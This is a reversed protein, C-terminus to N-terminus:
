RSFRLHERCSSRFLIACFIFDVFDQVRRFLPSLNNSPYPLPIRIESAEAHAPPNDKIIHMLRTTPLPWTLPPRRRLQSALLLGSGPTAGPTELPATPAQAQSDTGTTRTEERRASSALRPSSPCMSNMIVRNHLICRRSDRRGGDASASLPPTPTRSRENPRHM